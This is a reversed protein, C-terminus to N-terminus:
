LIRTKLDKRIKYAKEADNLVTTDVEQIFMAEKNHNLKRIAGKFPVTIQSHGTLDWKTKNDQWSGAANCFVHIIENECARSTCCSDIFVEEARPNHRLGKPSADQDSWFAPCIVIRAGKRIMARYMEPFVVDWCISLGIKGFTTNFVCTENGYAIHHREPHWLNIKRYAGKIKGNSSIYYLTNYKKKKYQSIMSGTVIDITYKKALEQFRKVYQKGVDEFNWSILYEPFVIIDARGSAKRIYPEVKKFTEKASCVDIELQVVAIKFKM